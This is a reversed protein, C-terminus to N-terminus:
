DEFGDSNAISCARHSCSSYNTDTVDAPDMEAMLRQLDLIRDM